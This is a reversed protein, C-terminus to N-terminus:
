RRALTAFAKKFVDSSFVKDDIHKEVDERVRIAIKAMREFDRQEAKRVEELSTEILREHEEPSM